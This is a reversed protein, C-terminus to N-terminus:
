VEGEFYASDVGPLGGIEDRRKTFDPIEVRTRIRRRVREASDALRRVPGAITSALLLSLVIMVAAAVGFVKLIALREATVMQDIDDGQTSLMLAGHVARFRQVPVAVSVIVEGRDNIRVMSSKQGNLSQAVEVSGGCEVGGNIIQTTVGFGPKLGNELDRANPQWTGDVVFLMPPKPPQPYHEVLTEEVPYLYIASGWQMGYCPFSQKKRTIRSFQVVELQRTFEPPLQALRERVDAPTLVHRYGPGPPQIVVRFDGGQGHPEHWDEPPIFAAREGREIARHGKGLPLGRAPAQPRRRGVPALSRNRAKLIQKRNNM